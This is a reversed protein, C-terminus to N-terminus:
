EVKLKAQWQIDGLSIDDCWHYKNANNKDLVLVLWLM